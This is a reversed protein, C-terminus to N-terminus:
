DKQQYFAARLKASRSAPNTRLEDDGAQVVKQTLLEFGPVRSEAVGEVESGEVRTSCGREPRVSSVAEVENPTFPPIDPRGKSLSGDEGLSRHAPVGLPNTEPTLPSTQSNGGSM